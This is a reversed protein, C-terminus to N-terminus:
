LHSGWKRGDLSCNLGPCALKSICNKICYAKLNQLSHFITEYTPKHYSFKKIIIYLLNRHEEQSMLIDTVKQNKKQLEKLTGFKRRFELAIGKNM